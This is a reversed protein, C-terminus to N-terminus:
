ENFHHEGIWASHMGLEEAYVAEDVIQLLLEEVTRKNNKYTNDANSFYSFKM